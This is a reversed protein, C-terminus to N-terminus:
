LNKEKHLNKIIYKENIFSAGDKTLIKESPNIGFISINKNPVNYMCDEDDCFESILSVYTINSLNSNRIKKLMKKDSNVFSIDLFTSPRRYNKDNLQEISIIDRIDKTWVPLPGLIIIPVGFKELKELNIVTHRMKAILVIYSIKSKNNDIYERAFKNMERCNNQDFDNYEDDWYRPLCGSGFIFASNFNNEINKFSLGVERALGDGFFLVNKKSDDLELCNEYDIKFNSHKESNWDYIFCSELNNRQTNQFLSVINSEFNDLTIELNVSENEDLRYRNQGNDIFIQENRFTSTTNEEITNKLYENEVECSLKLKLELNNITSCIYAQIDSLFILSKNEELSNENFPPKIMLFPRHRSYGFISENMSTSLIDDESYIHSPPGHDSKLIILSTDFIDKDKLVKIFEKFKKAACFSGQIQLNLNQYERQRDRHTIEAAPTLNCNKDYINPYHSFTWHGMHIVPEEIIQSNFLKLNYTDFQHMSEKLTLHKTNIMPVLISDFNKTFFRQLSPELYRNIELFFFNYSTSYFDILRDKGRYMNYYGFTQTKIDSNNILNEKDSIILKNLYQQYKQHEEIEKNGIIDFALSTASGPAKSIVNKFFIFDNFQSKNEDDFVVQYMENSSLSDFSIVFINLKKSIYLQEKSNSEINVLNVKFIISIFLYIFSTILIFLFINIFFNQLNKKYSCIILICTSILLNIILNNNSAQHLESVHPNINSCVALSCFFILLLGIYKSISLSGPIKILLIIIRDLLFSIILFFLLVTFLIKLIQNSYETFENLTILFNIFFFSFFFIFILTRYRPAVM